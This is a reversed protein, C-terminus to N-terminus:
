KIEISGMKYYAGCREADCAFYVVPFIETTLALEISYEGNKIGDPLKIEFSEHWDGPLWRRPDIGSDFIYECGEGRLRLKLKMPKYIPAVGTNSLELKFLLTDSPKAHEPYSFATPAIHYGMRSIWYDIKERWEYPIPMSKPNFSTIHWMLTLEIIRDIDWGRRQWEGLWWYSEFSVPASKWVESVKSIREPYSGFTHPPSGLGDGRWGIPVTKAGYYLLEPRSAQTLLQTNKFVEVYTDVIRELTNEPYLNLNHGEGWAGPLSIDIADFYPDKDYREGLARIADLFLDLFLPDLPSDKVREGDPRAPCDVLEKLWEPVDDCARTSHAMLRFILSQGHSKAESLINDIFAYNYKGREPEFERWLVRIYAITNDPYYGEERGREEADPAPPYCEVRETECFNAEPRVVIDSYMLEGRFHQFSMIGTYPNQGEERKYAFYGTKSPEMRMPKEM